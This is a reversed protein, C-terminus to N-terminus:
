CWCRRRCRRSRASGRAWVSASSRRWSRRGARGCTAPLTGGSLAVTAAIAEAAAGEYLAAPGDQAIRELLGALEPQLLRAGPALARDLAPWAPAGLELRSRHRDIAGRLNATVPMGERAVRVAPALVVDWPLRGHAAHLDALALADGGLGCADPLVVALVAGAAVAADAASGGAALMAGGASAAIPHGCALAGRGGRLLPRTM